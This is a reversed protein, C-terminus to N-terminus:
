GMVAKKKWTGELENNLMIYVLYTHIYAHIYTHIYSRHAVDPGQVEVM